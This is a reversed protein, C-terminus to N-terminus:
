AETLGNVLLQAKPVPLNPASVSEFEESFDVFGSPEPLPTQTQTM